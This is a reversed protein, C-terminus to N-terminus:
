GIVKPLVFWGTAGIVFFFIDVGFAFTFKISYNRIGWELVAQRPNEPNISVTVSANGPYRSVVTEAV